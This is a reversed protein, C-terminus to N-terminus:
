YSILISSKISELSCAISGFLIGVVPWFCAVFAGGLVTDARLSDPSYFPTKIRRSGKRWLHLVVSNARYSARYNIIYLFKYILLKSFYM